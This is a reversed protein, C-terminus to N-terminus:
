EEAFYPQVEIFNFILEQGIAGGPEDASTWDAITLKATPAKARFVRWYYNLWPQRDSAFPPVEGGGSSEFAHQSGEEPIMEVNEIRIEVAHEQKVSRGNALDQYDGTFMKLSYLQGPKLDRSEQVVGNPGKSSRKMRLFNDGRLSPRVRGELRGRGQFTGTDVGGDEAAAVTWGKTGEDFDPNRIHTLAYRFGYEKSLLNTKGEIGYHRFLRAAWRITEEDAYKSNWEMLGYLGDFAPDTALHHMEMDVWVKYDVGPNGNLSMAPVNFYGLCVILRAPADFVYDHWGKMGQTLRANLNERGSKEDPQEGWYRGWIFAAGNDVVADLFPKTEETGYMSGAYPYFLKTPFEATLRRLHASVALVLRRKRRGLRPRSVGM